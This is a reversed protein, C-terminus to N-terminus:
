RRSQILQGEHYAAESGRLDGNKELAESLWLWSEIHEPYLHATKRAQEVASQFKQQNMLAEILGYRVQYYEYGKLAERFYAEATNPDSELLCNGFNAYMLSRLHPKSEHDLLKQTQKTRECSESKKGEDLLAFAYNISFTPNSSDYRIANSWLQTSNEWSRIQHPALLIFIVFIPIFVYILKKQISILFGCILAIPILPLYLFQDSLRFGYGLWDAVLIISLFFWISLFQIKVKKRAAFFVAGFLLIFVAHFLIKSINSIQPVTMEPPYPIPLFIRNLLLFIRLSGSSNWLEATSAVYPVTDELGYYRMLFYLPWVLVAIWIEISRKSIMLDYLFLVLPLFIAIEKCFMALLLPLVTLNKIKKDSTWFLIAVLSFFTCWLDGQSSIFCVTHIQTPHLGFIVSAAFSGMRGLGLKKALMWVLVINLLHITLNVLHYGGAFYDFIKYELVYGLTVIPRYYPLANQISSFKWFSSNFIDFLSFPKHFYPNTLILYIDDWVFDFQIVNRYLFTTVLLLFLIEINKHKTFNTDM